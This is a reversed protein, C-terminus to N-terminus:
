LALRGRVVSVDSHGPDTDGPPELSVDVVPHGALDMDQPIAYRGSGGSLTGMAVMNEAKTDSVWVEFTGRPHTTAPMSMSVVLTRSGGPGREVAASGNAGAWGPLANLQTAADAPRSPAVLGRLLFGGGLGVVLATAAALGLGAWRPRRVPRRRATLEDAGSPRPPAAPQTSWAPDPAESFGVSRGLPVSRGRQLQHVVQAWVRPDPAVLRDEPGLSRGVAVVQQLSEIEAFCARCEAVHDVLDRDVDEGLALLPLLDPAPHATM